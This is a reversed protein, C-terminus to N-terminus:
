HRRSQGLSPLMAAELQVTTRLHTLARRLSAITMNYALGAGLPTDRPGNATWYPGEDWMFARHYQILGHQLQSRQEATISALIEPLDAIDAPTLVIAFRCSCAGCATTSLAHDSCTYRRCDPESLGHSLECYAEPHGIHMTIAHLWAHQTRHPNWPAPPELSPACKHYPIIDQYYQHVGPQIIVPICGLMMAQVLRIGWGIRCPPSEGKDADEIPPM